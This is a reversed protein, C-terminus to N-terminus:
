LYSKTVYGLYWWPILLSYSLFFMFVQWLIVYGLRFTLLYREFVLVSRWPYAMFEWAFDMKFSSNKILYIPMVQSLIPDVTLSREKAIVVRLFPV